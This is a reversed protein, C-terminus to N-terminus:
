KYEYTSHTTKYTMDRHRNYQSGEYTTVIGSGISRTDAFVFFLRQQLITPTDRLM